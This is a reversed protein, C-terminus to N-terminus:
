GQSGVDRWWITDWFFFSFFVWECSEHWNTYCYCQRSILASVLCCKDHQLTSVRSSFCSPSFYFFSHLIYFFLLFFFCLIFKLPFNFSHILLLRQVLLLPCYSVPPSLYLSSSCFSLTFISSCSLCALFAQRPNEIQLCISLTLIVATCIVRRDTTCCGEAM